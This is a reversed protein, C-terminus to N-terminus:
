RAFSVSGGEAIAETNSLVRKTCSGLLKLLRAEAVDLMEAEMEDGPASLREREIAWAAHGEKLAVAFPSRPLEKQSAGVM